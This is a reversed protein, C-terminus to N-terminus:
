ENLLTMPSSPCHGVLLSLFTGSPMSAVKQVKSRTGSLASVYWTITTMTFLTAVMM